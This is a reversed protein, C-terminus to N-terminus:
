LRYLTSLISEPVVFIYQIIFFFRPVSFTSFPAFLCVSRSFWIASSGMGPSMKFIATGVM